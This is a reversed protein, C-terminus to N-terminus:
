PLDASTDASENLSEIELAIHGWDLRDPEDLASVDIELELLHRTGPSGPVQVRISEAAPIPQSLSDLRLHRLGPVRALRLVIAESHRDIPPARFGRSLQFRGWAPDLTAPLDLRTINNEGPSPIRVTWAKRFHIAHKIVSLDRPTATPASALTICQDPHAGPPITALWIGRLSWQM